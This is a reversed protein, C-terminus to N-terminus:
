SRCALMVLSILSLSVSSVFTNKEGYVTSVNAVGGDQFSGSVSRSMGSQRASKLSLGEWKRAWSWTWPVGGSVGSHCSAPVVNTGCLAALEVRVIVEGPGPPGPRPVNEIRVHHLGASFVRKM